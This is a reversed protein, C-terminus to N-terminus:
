LLWLLRITMDYTITGTNLGDGDVVLILTHLPRVIRATRLDYHKERHVGVQHGTLRDWGYWGLRNDGSPDPVAMASLADSTVVTIGWFWGDRSISVDYEATIIARVVTIPGSEHESLM